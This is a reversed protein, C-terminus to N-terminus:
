NILMVLKTSKSIKPFRSNMDRILVTYSFMIIGILIGKMIDAKSLSNFSKNFNENLYFICIGFISHLFFLYLFYKIQVM